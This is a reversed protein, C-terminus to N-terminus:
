KRRWKAGLAIFGAMAFLCLPAIVGLLVGAIKGYRTFIGIKDTVSPHLPNPREYLIVVTSSDFYLDQGDLIVFSLVVGILILAAIVFLRQNNNM